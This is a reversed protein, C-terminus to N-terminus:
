ETLSAILATLEEENEISKVFDATLKQKKAPWGAFSACEVFKEYAAFWDFPSHKSGKAFDARGSFKEGTTLTVEILTTLNTYDSGVNTFATFNVKSMSRAIGPDEVSQNTFTSLGARGKTIIAALAFQMSFRAEDADKPRDHCLTGRVRDNTQVNITEITEPTLSYKEQLDLMLTMAPHTLAGNPWPKISTGPEVLAWPKGLRGSIAEPIYGGGAAEFWGNTKELINKAASMGAQALTAAQVGGESAFGCHAQETMTGFNGRVGGARVTAIGLANSIRESDLKLLKAAAATAGFIGLSATSHYGSQYHRQGMAHSLKCAVELGCHIAESFERGSANTIQAVSIAAPLIVAGAHIGGNRDATPQPNTDDFNDAHMATGIALASHAASARINTALIATENSRSQTDIYTLITSFVPSKSGALALGLADLLHIRGRHLVEAPIDDLRTKAVFDSIEETIPPTSDSM